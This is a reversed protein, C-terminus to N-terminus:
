GTKSLRLFKLGLPNAIRTWRRGGIYEPTAAFFQWQGSALDSTWGHSLLGIVAALGGMAAALLLMAEMRGASEHWDCSPSCKM